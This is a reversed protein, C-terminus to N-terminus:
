NRIIKIHWTSFLGHLNVTPLPHYVLQSFWNLIFTRPGIDAQINQGIYRWSYAIHRNDEITRITGSHEGRFLLKIKVLEFAKAPLIWNPEEDSGSMTITAKNFKIITAVDNLMEVCRFFTTLKDLCPIGQERFLLRICKIYNFSRCNQFINLCAIGGSWHQLLIYQGKVEGGPFSTKQEQLCSYCIQEEM